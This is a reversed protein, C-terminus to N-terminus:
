KWDPSTGTNRILRLAPPTPSFRVRASVTTWQSGQHFGATSSWVVSRARRMPWSRFTKTWRKIASLVM